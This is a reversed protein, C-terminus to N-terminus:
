YLRGIRCVGSWEVGSWEAGYGLLITLYLWSMWGDLVVM